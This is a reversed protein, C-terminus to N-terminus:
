MIIIDKRIEIEEFTYKDILTFIFEYKGKIDFDKASLEIGFPTEVEAKIPYERIIPGISEALPMEVKNGLPDYVDREITFGIRYGNNVEVTTAKYLQMIKIKENRTYENSERIICTFDEKIEECLSVSFEEDGNLGALRSPDLEEEDDQQEEEDTDEDMDEYIMEEDDYSPASPSDNDPLLLYVTGLILLLAVVALILITLTSSKKAPSKSKPAYSNNQYGMGQNNMQQDYSPQVPQSPRQSQAQAFAQRITKEDYGYNLLAKGIQDPSYGQSSYNRVYEILRADVM